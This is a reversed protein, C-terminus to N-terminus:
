LTRLLGYGKGIRLWIFGSLTKGDWKNLVWNTIVRGGAGLDQFFDREKWSEWWFGIHVEERWWIHRM